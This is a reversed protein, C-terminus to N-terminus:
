RVSDLATLVKEKTLFESLVVPNKGPRYLVAFPVGYRNFQALYNGIAVDRRTWDARMMVVGHDRFARAVEPADLVVHENYKCTFCWAATVDVFVPKGSRLIGPIQAEDFVNWPLAEKSATVPAGAARHRKVVSLMGWALGALVIWGALWLSRSGRLRSTMFQGKLWAVLGVTVLGLYFYALGTPDIQTSLVYGLWVVTAALFFGLVVRVQLMWAGPKPLWRICQPAAALVLYPVAMGVGVALFVETIVGARQALAFGMATGLFPASCPTALLTAFLGSLFYAVPGEGSQAAAGLRALMPPLDFGFVGWLNLAFLTVVIALTAVFRPEQFQIGWGVAQGAGKALIAAMALGLFSVVIGAASSLADRVIAGRSQGSHELLGFLKISLVPLVCPMINLILGGLLALILVWVISLEEPGAAPLGLSPAKTLVYGKSDEVALPAARSGLGTLTFAIVTRQPVPRDDKSKVASQFLWEGGALRQASVRGFALRPHNEFFLHVQDPSALRPAQLRVEFFTDAGRQFYGAALKVTAQSTLPRPVLATYHRLLLDLDADVVPQDAAPLDLTLTYKHPVCIEKCTLYDLRAVAHLAGGTSEGRVPYIVEGTYGIAILGGPEPYYQPVPWLLEPRVFGTSGDWRVRPPYGADGPNKWYLHWGTATKFQLGFYITGQTPAVKYPSILRVKGQPNTQWATAAAHLPCAALCLLSFLIPFDPIRRGGPSPNSGLRLSEHLNRL